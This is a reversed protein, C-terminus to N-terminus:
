LAELALGAAHAAAVFNPFSTAVNAVHAIELPTRARLAAVAFAMAIRHDGRSDIAGGDWANQGRIWLGDSLLQHEVGLV